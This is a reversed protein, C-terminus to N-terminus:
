RFLQSLFHSNSLTLSKEQPITAHSISFFKDIKNDRYKYAVQMKNRYGDKLPSPIIEKINFKIKEKEFANNVLNKKFKLQEDYNMHLLQCSGCKQFVTCKSKSRSKSEDLLKVLKGKGSKEEVEVIGKEQPLFYPVIIEKKNYISVGQGFNNLKLCKLELKKFSKM